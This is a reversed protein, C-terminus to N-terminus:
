AWQTLLYQFGVKFIGSSCLYFKVLPKEDNAKHLDARLLLKDALVTSPDYKLKEGETDYEPLYYAKLTEIKFEGTEAKMKLGNLLSKFEIVPPFPKENWNPEPRDKGMIADAMGEMSPPGNKVLNKIKKGFGTNDAAAKSALDKLKKSFM